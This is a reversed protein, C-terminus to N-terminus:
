KTNHPSKIYMIQSCVKKKPACMNFMAVDPSSAKTLVTTWLNHTMVAFPTRIFGTKLIGRYYTLNIWSELNIRWGAKLHLSGIFSKIHMVQCITFYSIRFLAHPPTLECCPIHNIFLKSEHLSFLQESVNSAEEPNEELSIPSALQFGLVAVCPPFYLTQWREAYRPQTSM